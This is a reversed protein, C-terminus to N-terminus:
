KGFINKLGSLINTDEHQEAPTTTTGSFTRVLSQIDFGKENPDNVKGSIASMIMPVIKASVMNAASQPLGVKKVLESVVSNQINGMIPNSSSANNGVFLNILNSTNGVNFNRKLGDAVASTATEVTQYKKEQPVEESGSVVNSVTSKVINLINDLM